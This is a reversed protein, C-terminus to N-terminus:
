QLQAVDQEEDGKGEVCGVWSTWVTQARIWVKWVRLRAVDQQM